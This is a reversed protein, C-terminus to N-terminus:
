QLKKRAVSSTGEETSHKLVLGETIRDMRHKFLKIVDIDQEIRISELLLQQEAATDSQFIEVNEDTYLTKSM